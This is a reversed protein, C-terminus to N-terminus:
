CTLLYHVTIVENKYAAGVTWEAQLCFATFGRSGKERKGKEASEKCTVVCASEEEREFCRASEVPTVM